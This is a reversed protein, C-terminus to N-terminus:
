FNLKLGTEVTHFTDSDFKELEYKGTIEWRDFLKKKIKLYYSRVNDRETENISGNVLFRNTLLNGTRTLVPATSNDFKYLSYYSGVSIKLRKNFNKTADFSLSQVDDGATEYDDGTVSLTLGKVPFDFVTFTLYYREYDHNFQREDSEDALERFSFGMNVGLHDGIGKYIDMTYQDYPEYGGMLPVFEDFEITYNDLRQAQKYYSFQIDLDISSFNWSSRIQFDRSVSDLMSYRGFVNWWQKINQWVSFILLNDHHDGIDINNDSTSIYDFRLTSHELPKIEASVGSIWDGDSSSEFFHVPIGGYATFRVNKFPKLSLHIGDFHLNEVDYLYQRGIKVNDILGSLKVNAYFEYLYGRLTIDHTDDISRFMSSPDELDERLTGFFVASFKDSSPDGYNLRLSEYFDQDSGDEGELFRGKYRMKLSGSFESFIDKMAAPSNYEVNKDDVVQSFLIKAPSILSFAFLVIFIYKILEAKRKYNM